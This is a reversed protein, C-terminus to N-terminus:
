DIRSNAGEAMIRFTLESILIGYSEIDVIDVGSQSRNVGNFRIHTHLPM